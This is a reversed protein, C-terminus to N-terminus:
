SNDSQFFYIQENVLDTKISNFEKGFFKYIKKLVWKQISYTGKIGFCLITKKNYNAKLFKLYNMIVKEEMEQFSSFNLFLDFNKPIKNLQWPPIPFIFKEKKTELSDLDKSTSYNIVRKPYFFNLYQNGIYINPVLDLYYAGKINPYFHILSHTLSGFGGGIEFINKIKKLEIVKSIEDIRQFSNLYTLPYYKGNILFKLSPNGILTNIKKKTKLFKKLWSGYKLQYFKSQYKIKQNNLDNIKEIYNKFLLKKLFHSNHLKLVIKEKIKKGSVQQMPNTILVDSFGKSIQPISRFNNVGFKYLNSKTRQTNDVWYKTPKYLDSQLKEDQILLELLNFEDVIKEKFSM